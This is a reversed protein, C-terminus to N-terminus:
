SAMRKSFRHLIVTWCPKWWNMDKMSAYNIVPMRIVPLIPLIAPFCIVWWSTKPIIDRKKLAECVERITRSLRSDKRPKKKFMMTERSVNAM